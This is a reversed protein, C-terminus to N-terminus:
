TEEPDRRAFSRRSLDLAYNGYRGETLVGNRGSAKLLYDLPLHAFMFADFSARAPVEVFEPVPIEYSGLVPLTLEIVYRSM